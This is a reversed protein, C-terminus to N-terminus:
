LRCVLATPLALLTFQYVHLIDYRQHHRWLTWGIIIMALLYFAKQLIRPLKERRGLLMGAVRIVPVGEILEHRPWAKNHRFTVITTAYGRERLNRAQILAQREAGGVIPHFTAITIYIRPKDM